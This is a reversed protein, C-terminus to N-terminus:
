FLVIDSLDHCKLLRNCLDDLVEAFPRQPRLVEATIAPLSSVKCQPKPALASLHLDDFGHEGRLSVWQRPETVLSDTGRPRLRTLQGNPMRVSLSPLTRDQDTM